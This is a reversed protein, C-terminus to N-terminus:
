FNMAEIFDDGFVDTEALKIEASKRVIKEMKELSNKDSLAKICGALSTNGVCETVSQELFEEPLLRLYKVKQTDLHESFGGALYVKDVDEARCGHMQLLTDIGSRIAAKALQVARIDNQTFSINESSKEDKYLIFGEDFYEDGLLGTEDIIGTRRLESVLELVGSGCIGLPEAGSIVDFEAEANDKITIHEIAGKVGAMGCSIGGGEFVPGAATSCVSIKESDALAMEGNTGLDILMYKKGEPIKDFSLAYMGSVIDAGVFASIGPALICKSEQRYAEKDGLLQTMDMVPYSLRVPTYPAKGLGECSDGMLIHQMTTNGAIMMQRINLNKTISKIDEIVARRLNEGEGANAAQIRSIVDAGYRRQHNMITVRYVAKDADGGNKVPILAAAITTTGIDLAVDTECDRYDPRNEVDDSLNGALEESGYFSEIEADEAIVARCALRIGEAIEKESLFRVDLSNAKPAGSLFRVRCKGCRGMGGCPKEVEIGSKLMFESLLTGEYVEYEKNLYNLKCKKMIDPDSQVPKQTSM